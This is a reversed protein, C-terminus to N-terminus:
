PTSTSVIKRIRARMRGLLHYNRRRFDADQRSLPVQNQIIRYRNYLSAAENSNMKSLRNLASGVSALRRMFQAHSVPNTKSTLPSRVIPAVKNTQRAVEHIVGRCLGIERRLRRVHRRCDTPAAAKASPQRRHKIEYLLAGLEAYYRGRDHASRSASKLDITVYRKMLPAARRSNKEALKALALGVENYRALFTKGSLMQFQTPAKRKSLIPAVGPLLKRAERRIADISSTCEELETQLSSLDNLCSSAEAASIGAVATGSAFLIAIGL